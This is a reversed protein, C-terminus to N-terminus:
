IKSSSVTKSSSNQGSIIDTTCYAIFKEDEVKEVSGYDLLVYHELVENMKDGIEGNRMKTYIFPIEFTRSEEDDTEQMIAKWNKKEYIYCRTLEIKGDKEILNIFGVEEDRGLTKKYNIEHEKLIPYNKGEERIMDEIEARLRNITRM